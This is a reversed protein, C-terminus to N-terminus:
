SRKNGNTDSEKLSLIYQIINLQSLSMSNIIQPHKNIENLLISQTKPTIKAKFIDTFILNSSSSNVLDSVLLEEFQDLIIKLKKEFTCYKDFSIFKNLKILMIFDQVNSDHLYFSDFAINLDSKEFRINYVTCFLYISLADFSQDFLLSQFEGIRFNKAFHVFYTRIKDNKFNPEYNILFFNALIGFEKLILPLPLDKKEAENILNNIKKELSNM